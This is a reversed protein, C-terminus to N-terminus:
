KIKDVDIGVTIAGIVKGNSLVPLSIQALHEKASEDLRPRDIFVGGQGNNFSRQWKAEDGQWYDSTKQNACVLAGQNDMLFTEGYIPSTATLARLRDACAGTTMEKVLAEAKGAIWAEDRKNIEAMALHQNNQAVVANVLLPDAAWAKLKLAEADLRKQTDNASQSAAMTAMLMLLMAVMVNRKM